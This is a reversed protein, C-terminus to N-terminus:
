HGTTIVLKLTTIVANNTVTYGELTVTGNPDYISPLTTTPNAALVLAGSQGTSADAMLTLAGNATFTNGPGMTMNVNSSM